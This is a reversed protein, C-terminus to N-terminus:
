FDKIILLEDILPQKEKRRIDIKVKLEDVLTQNDKAILSIKGYPQCDRNLELIELGKDVMYLASLKEGMWEIKNNESLWKFTPLRKKVPKFSRRHIPTARHNDLAEM